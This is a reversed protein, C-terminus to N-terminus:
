MGPPLTPSNVLGIWAELPPLALPGDVILRAETMRERLSCWRWGEARDVLRARVPNAEVYRIARFYRADQQIPFARFRGQYVHGLGVTNSHKRIRAGHMATVRQLFQTLQAPQRPWVVFHWHNPM